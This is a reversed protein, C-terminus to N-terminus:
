PQAHQLRRAQWFPAVVEALSRQPDLLAERISSIDVQAAVLEQLPRSLAQDGMVLAGALTNGRVM